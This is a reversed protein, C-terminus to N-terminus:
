PWPKRLARSARMAERSSLTRCTRALTRRPSASAAMTYRVSASAAWSATSVMEMGASRLTTASYGIAARRSAAWGTSARTKMSSTSEGAPRANSPRYPNWHAGTGPAGDLMRRGDQQHRKEYQGDGRQRQRQAPAIQQRSSAMREEEWREAERQRRAGAAQGQHDHEARQDGPPHRPMPPPQRPEDLGDGLKRRHDRRRDRAHPQKEGEAAASKKAGKESSLAKREREARRGHYQRLREDGSREEDLRRDRCEPAHVLVEQSDGPGEPRRREPREQAHRQREGRGGQHAPRRHAPRPEETLEAGGQEEGAVQGTTRLRQWEGDIGGHFRIQACRLRQGQDHHRHCKRHQEHQPPHRLLRVISSTRTALRTPVSSSASSSDTPASVRRTAPGFPAPFDVRSRRRRPTVRGSRPRMASSPRM